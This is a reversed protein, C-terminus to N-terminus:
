GRRVEKSAADRDHAPPVGGDHCPSVARAENAILITSKCLKLLARRADGPQSTM